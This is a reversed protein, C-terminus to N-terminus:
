LLINRTGVMVFIMAAVNEFEMDGIVCNDVWGHHITTRADFPAPSSIWCALGCNLEKVFPEDITM